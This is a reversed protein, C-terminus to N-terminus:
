VVNKGYKGDGLLPHGVSALHARIQHTRGTILLVELLSLEKNEKLVKYKTIITKAGSQPQNKIRVTNTSSDKILYGKLTDEKKFTQGYCHV